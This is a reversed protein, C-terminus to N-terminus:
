KYLKTKLDRYYDLNKWAEAYADFGKITEVEKWYFAIQKNIEEKTLQEEAQAPEPVKIEETPLQNDTM